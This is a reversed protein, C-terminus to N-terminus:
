NGPASPMREAARPATNLPAAPGPTIIPQVSGAVPPERLSGPVAAGATYAPVSSYAPGNSYVSSPGSPTPTSARRSAFRDRLRQFFGPRASGSDAYSSSPVPQVVTNAPVPDAGPVTTILLLVLTNM